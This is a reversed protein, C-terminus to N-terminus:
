KVAGKKNKLEVLYGVLMFAAFVILYWVNAMKHKDISAYIIVGIGCLSLAPLVFRKFVSLEKEKIMMSILIPIYLAYLTIIPLESSDFAYKSVTGFDFLGAGLLIFYVFWFACMMLTFIASNHPIQTKRDVESFTDPSIGEGRASLSYLGRVGGLMLGNLTGLCSIVVLINILSAVASGFFNFAM